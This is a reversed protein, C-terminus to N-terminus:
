PHPETATLKDMVIQLQPPVPCHDPRTRWLQEALSLQAEAMENTIPGSTTIPVVPSAPGPAGCAAVTSQLLEVLGLARRYKENMAIRRPTPDLAVVLSLMQLRRASAVDTGDRRVADLFARQAAPYNGSRLEAEGLGRYAALDSPNRQIASQYLAAARPPAGAALFLEAVKRGLAPDDHSAQELPLLEALLEVKASRKALWNALELRVLIANAAPDRPWVGYIARHYFSDAEEIRNQAIMVRAMLLNAPAANSNEDLQAQLTSEATQLEGAALLAEAYALAYERNTHILFHARQFRIAAEQSKGGALLQQGESALGQAEKRLEDQELKELSRDIWFLGAMAAAVAIAAGATVRNGNM